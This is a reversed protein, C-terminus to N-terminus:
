ALFSGNLSFHWAPLGARWSLSVGTETPKCNRSKRGAATSSYIM